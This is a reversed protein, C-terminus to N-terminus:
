ASTTTFYLFTYFTVPTCHHATYTHTHPTCFTHPSSVIAMGARHIPLLLYMSALFLSTPLRTAHAMYLTYLTYPIAPLYLSPYSVPLHLCVPISPQHHAHPIRARWNCPLRVLPISHWSLSHFYYSGDNRWSRRASRCSQGSICRLTAPPPPAAHTPATLRYTPLYRQCSCADCRFFRLTPLPSPLCSRQTLLDARRCTYPLRRTSRRLLARELNCARLLFAGVPPLTM